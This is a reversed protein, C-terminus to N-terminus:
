YFIYRVRDYYIPTYSYGNGNQMNSGGAGGNVESYGPVILKVVSSDGVYALISEVGTGFITSYVPDYRNTQIALSALGYKFEVPYWGSGFTNFEQLGYDDTYEGSMRVLVDTRYGVARNGNGSDVVNLYIGSTLQFFENEGFVGDAPFESLVTINKESLIKRIVKQEASKLEEYTPMDNCSVTFMLNLVSGVVVLLYFSKKMNLM